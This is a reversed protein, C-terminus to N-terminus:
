ATVEDLGDRAVQPNMQMTDFCAISDPQIMEAEPIKQASVVGATGFVFCEFLAQCNQMGVVLGSVCYLFTDVDLGQQRGQVLLTSANCSPFPM